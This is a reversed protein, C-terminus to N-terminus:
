LTCVYTSCVIYTISHVKCNARYSSHRFNLPRRSYLACLLSFQAIRIARFSLLFDTHLRRYLSSRFTFAYIAYCWVAIAAWNFVWVQLFHEHHERFLRMMLLHISHFNTHLSHVCVRGFSPLINPPTIENLFSLPAPFFVIQIFPKNNM